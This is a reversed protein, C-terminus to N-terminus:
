RTLSLPFHYTVLSFLSKLNSLHSKPILILFHFIVLAFHFSFTSLSSFKRIIIRNGHYQNKYLYLIFSCFLITLLEQIELDSLFSSLLYSHPSPYSPLFSMWLYRNGASFTSNMPFQRPLWLEWVPKVNIGGRSRDEYIPLPTLSVAVYKHLPRSAIASRATGGVNRRVRRCDVECNDSEVNINSGPGVDSM